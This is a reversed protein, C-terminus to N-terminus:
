MTGPTTPKTVSHGAVALPFSSRSARGHGTCPGPAADAEVGAAAGAATGAAADTATGAAADTAADARM